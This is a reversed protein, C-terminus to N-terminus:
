EPRTSSRIWDLFDPTSHAIPLAVICPCEYPHAARVADALAPYRDDETKAVLVVEDSRDIANNWWYLSRVSPLINVCAALRRELLMLALGEACASDPTTIYVFLALAAEQHCPCLGM